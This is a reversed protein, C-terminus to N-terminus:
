VATIGPNQRKDQVDKKSKTEEASQKCLDGREIVDVGRVCTLTLQNSGAVVM